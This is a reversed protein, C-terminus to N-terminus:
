ALKSLTFDSADKILHINVAKGRSIAGLTKGVENEASCKRVIIKSSM